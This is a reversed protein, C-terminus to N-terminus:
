GGNAERDEHWDLIAEHREESKNPPPRADGMFTNLKSVLLSLTHRDAVYFKDKSAFYRRCAERWQPITLLGALGKATGADKPRVLYPEPYSAKREECFAAIFEHPGPL